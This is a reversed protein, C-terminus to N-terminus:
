HTCFHTANSRLYYGVTGTLVPGDVKLGGETDELLANSEKAKRNASHSVTVHPYENAVELKEDVEVHVAQLGSDDYAYGVVKLKVKQGLPLSSVDQKGFRLTMHHAVEKSHLADMNDAMRLLRAKSEADLKVCSYLVKKPEVPM